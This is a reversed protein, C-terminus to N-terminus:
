ITNFTELDEGSFFTITNKPSAYRNTKEFFKLTMEANEYQEFIKHPNRGALNNVIDNKVDKISQSKKNIPELFQSKAFIRNM